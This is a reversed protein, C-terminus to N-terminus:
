QEKKIVLNLSGVGIEVFLDILGEMEPTIVFKPTGDPNKYGALISKTAEMARRKKEKHREADTMGALETDTKAVQEIGVVAKKATDMVINVPNDAPLMASTITSIGSTIETLGVTLSKNNRLVMALSILVIIVGSVAASTLLVSGVENM